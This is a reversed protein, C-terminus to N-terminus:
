FAMCFVKGGPLTFANVSEDELLRFNWEYQEVDDQVAAIRKSARTIKNTLVKRLMELINHDKNQVLRKKKNKTQWSLSRAGQLMLTQLPAAQKLLEIFLLSLVIKKM